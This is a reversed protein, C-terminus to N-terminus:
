VYQQTTWEQAIDALFRHPNEEDQSVASVAELLPSPSQRAEM